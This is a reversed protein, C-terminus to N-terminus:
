AGGAAYADDEIWHGRGWINRTKIRAWLHIAYYRLTGLRRAQGVHETEHLRTSAAPPNRRYLVFVAGFCPLTIANGFQLAFHKEIVKM